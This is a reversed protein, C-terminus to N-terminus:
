ASFLARVRTREGSLIEMARGLGIEAAVARLLSEVPSTSSVTRPLSGGGRAVARRAAQKVVKKRAGAKAAGRVNYVYGVDLKIGEAKAKAVIEKPSLNSHARVFAAKSAPPKKAVVSKAVVASAKPAAKKVGPVKKTGATKAKAMRRVEYVLGARLEIGQAKAKKVVEAASM